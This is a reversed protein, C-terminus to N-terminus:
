MTEIWEEWEKDTALEPVGWNRRKLRIAVNVLRGLLTRIDEDIVNADVEACFTQNWAPLAAYFAQLCLYDIYENSIPTKLDSVLSCAAKHILFPLMTANRALLDHRQDSEYVRHIVDCVVPHYQEEM